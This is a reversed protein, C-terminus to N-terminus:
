SEPKGRLKETHSMELNPVEEILSVAKLIYFYMQSFMTTKKM